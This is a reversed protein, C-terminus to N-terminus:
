CLAEEAHLICVVTVTIDSYHTLLLHITSLSNAIYPLILSLPLSTNFTQMCTLYIIFIFQLVLVSMEIKILQCFNELYLKMTVSLDYLHAHTTWLRHAAYLTYPSAENGPRWSDPSLAKKASFTYCGHGSHSSCKRYQQTTHM